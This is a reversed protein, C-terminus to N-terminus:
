TDEGGLTLQRHEKAADPDTDFPAPAPPQDTPAGHTTDYLERSLPTLRRLNIFWNTAGYRQTKVQHALAGGIWGHVIFVFNGHLAVDREVMVYRWGPHWATARLRFYGDVMARTGSRQAVVAWNPPIDPRNFGLPDLPAHVGLVKAVAIEAQAGLTHHILQTERDRELGTRLDERDERRRFARVSEVAMEGWADARRLEEGLLEVIQVRRGNLTADFPGFFTAGYRGRRDYIVTDGPLLENTSRWPSMDM